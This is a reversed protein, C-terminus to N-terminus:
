DNFLGSFNVIAYVLLYRGVVYSAGVTFNNLPKLRYILRVLGATAVIYAVWMVIPEVELHLRRTVYTAVSFLFVFAIAKSWSAKSPEIFVVSYHAIALAITWAALVFIVIM